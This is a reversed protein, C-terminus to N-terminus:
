SMTLLLLYPKICTEPLIQPIKSLRRVVKNRYRDASRALQIIKELGSDDDNLVQECIKIQAEAQRVIRQKYEVIYYHTKTYTNM